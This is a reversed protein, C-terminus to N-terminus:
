PSTIKWEKDFELKFSLAQSGRASSLRVTTLAQAHDRSVVKAEVESPEGGIWSEIAKDFKRVDADSMSEPDALYTRAGAYRGAVVERVFGEAVADPPPVFLERDGFREVAVLGTGALVAFAAVVSLLRRV